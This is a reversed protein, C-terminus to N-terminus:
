TGNSALGVGFFAEHDNVAALPAALQPSVLRRAVVVTGKENLQGNRFELFKANQM